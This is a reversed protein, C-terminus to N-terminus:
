LSSDHRTSGRIHFRCANLRCRNGCHCSRNNCGSGLYYNVTIGVLIVATIGVSGTLDLILVAGDKIVYRGNIYMIRHIYLLTSIDLALIGINVTIGIGDIVVIQCATEVPEVTVSRQCKNVIYQKVYHEPVTVKIVVVPVIVVGIYIIGPAVIGPVVIGPVIVCPIIIRPIVIAPIPIRIVSRSIVATM